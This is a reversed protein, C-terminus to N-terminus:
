YKKIIEFTTSLTFFNSSLNSGEIATMMHYKGGNTYMKVEMKYVAGGALSGIAVGAGEFAGGVIGQMTSGM